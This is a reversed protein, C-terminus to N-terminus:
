FIEGEVDLRRSHQARVVAHVARIAGQETKSNGIVQAIDADEWCEVVYDWGSKGYNKHAHARVAAVLAATDPKQPKTDM